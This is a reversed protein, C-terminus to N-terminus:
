CLPHPEYKASSVLQAHASLYRLIRILRIQVDDNVRPTINFVLQLVPPPQQDM